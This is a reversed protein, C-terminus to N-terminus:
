EHHDYEYEKREAESSRTIELNGRSKPRKEAIGITDARLRMETWSASLKRSGGTKRPM